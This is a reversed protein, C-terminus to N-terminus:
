ALVLLIILFWTGFGWSNDEDDAKAAAKTNPDQKAQAPDYKKELRKTNVANSAKGLQESACDLARATANAAQTIPGPVGNTAMAHDAALGGVALAGATKWGGFRYGEVMKKGTAPDVQPGM